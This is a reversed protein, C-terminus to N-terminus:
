SERRSVWIEGSDTINVDYPELAEPPPGSVVKGSLDFKGNHCACWVINDDEKYQVICALHTCSAELARYTGQRDKFLIVPSRGFQIIRFPQEWVDSVAGVKLSSVKAEGLPPPVLYRVVPYLVSGLWGVIGIGLLNRLARRRSLKDGTPQEPTTTITSM